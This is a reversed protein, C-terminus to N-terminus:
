GWPSTTHGCARLQRATLLLQDRPVECDYANRLIAGRQEAPAASRPDHVAVASPLHLLLPLCAIRQRTTWRGSGAAHGPVSTSVSVAAGSSLHAMVFVRVAGLRIACDMGADSLCGCCGCVTM